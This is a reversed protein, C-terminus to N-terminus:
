EAYQYLDISTESSRAIETNLNSETSGQEAVLSCTTVDWFISIKMKVRM